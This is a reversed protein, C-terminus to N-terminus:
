ERVRRIRFYGIDPGGWQRSDWVIPRRSDIWYENTFASGDGMECRERVYRVSYAREIITINTNGQDELQCTFSLAVEEFAGTRVYMVRAGAGDSGISPGGRAGDVSVDSSMLHGGLGRTAILVGARTTLTVDDQTRWQVIEGPSTDFRVARANLYARLNRRELYVEVFSGDLQDLQARTPGPQGVAARRAANTAISAQTTQAIQSFLPTSTTGGSCAALVLVALVAALPALPRMVPVGALISGRWMM